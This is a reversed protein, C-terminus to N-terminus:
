SLTLRYRIAVDASYAVLICPIDLRLTRHEDEVLRANRVSIGFSGSQRNFFDWLGLIYEKHKSHRWYRNCSTELIADILQRNRMGWTHDAATVHPSGTLDLRSM